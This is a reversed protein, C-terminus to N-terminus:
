LLGETRLQPVNARSVPIEEGTALTLIARDGHRRAAHVADRAIWHSRHVQLGPEPATEAIADALRMLIMHDGRDTRVRVYHDEASLALLRGRKEVPLRALVPPSDDEAGAERGEPQRDLITGLATVLIAIAVLTLVFEALEAPGSPLTGFAAANIAMVAGSIALGTVLGLTLIRLPLGTGRRELMPGLSLSVLVGISWTVAAVTTWYLIRPLLIMSAGTGFPGAIGLIAGVGALGALVRRDGM